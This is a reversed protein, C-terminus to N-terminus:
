NAPRWRAMLKDIGAAVNQWDSLWERPFRFTIDAAGARKELLCTGANAVGQRSCRTLFQQTPDYVLDEGEYPTEARFPHVVLGDPGSAQTKSLYRPYINKVREALPLAGDDIQILAFLRENPDVPKGDIVKISPDPPILSPWLYAVDIRNKTGANRQSPIRVAAPEINFVTGGVTIPISPADTAVPADPWRPWLVYAVYVAAVICAAAFVAVPAVLPGAHKRRKAVRRRSAPHQAITAM